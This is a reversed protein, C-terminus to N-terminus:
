PLKQDTSLACRDAFPPVGGVSCLTCRCATEARLSVSLPSFYANTQVSQRATLEVHRFSGTSELEGASQIM